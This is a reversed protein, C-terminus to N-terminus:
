WFQFNRLSFYLYGDCIAKFYSIGNGHHVTFGMIVKTTESTRSTALGSILIDPLQVLKYYCLDFAQQVTRTRFTRTLHSDAECGSLGQKLINEQSKNLTKIEWINNETPKWESEMSNTKVPSWFVSLTCSWPLIKNPNVGSKVLVLCSCSQSDSGCLSKVSKGVSDRGCWLLVTFLHKKLLLSQNEEEERETQAKGVVGSMSKGLSIVLVVGNLGVFM